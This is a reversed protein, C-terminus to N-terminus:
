NESNLWFLKLFCNKTNWYIFSSHESLDLACTGFNCTVFSSYKFLLILVKKFCRITFLVNVVDWLIPNKKKKKKITKYDNCYKERYNHSDAKHSCHIINVTSLHNLM